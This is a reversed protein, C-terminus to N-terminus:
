LVPRPARSLRLRRTPGLACAPPRARGSAGGRHRVKAQSRRSL